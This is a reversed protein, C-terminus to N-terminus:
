GGILKPICFGCVLLAASAPWFAARKIGMKAAVEIAWEMSQNALVCTVKDHGLENRDQWPELEDSIPVLNIKGEIKDEEKLAKIVRKHNF